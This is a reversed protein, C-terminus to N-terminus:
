YPRGRCMEGHLRDALMTCVVQNGIALTLPLPWEGDALAWGEVRGRQNIWDLCGLESSFSAKALLQLEADGQLYLDVDAATLLTRNPAALRFGRGSFDMSALDPRDVNLQVRAINKQGCALVLELGELSGGRGVGVWGAFYGGRTAFDICAWFEKGNVITPAFNSVVHSGMAEGWSTSWRM